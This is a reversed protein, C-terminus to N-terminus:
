FEMQHLHHEGAQYPAQNKLPTTPYLLRTLPLSRPHNYCVPAHRNTIVPPQSYPLLFTRRTTPTDCIQLQGPLLTTM